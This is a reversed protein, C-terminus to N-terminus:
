NFVLNGRIKAMYKDRLPKTTQLSSTKNLCFIYLLLAELRYKTHRKLNVRFIQGLKWMKELM